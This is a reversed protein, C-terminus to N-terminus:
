ARADDVVSDHGVCTFVNLGLHAPSETEAQFAPGHFKEVDLVDAEEPAFVSAEDPLELLALDSFEFGVAFKGRTVFIDSKPYGRLAQIFVLKKLHHTMHAPVERFGDLADICESVRLCLPNTLAVTDVISM